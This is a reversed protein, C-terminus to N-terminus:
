KAKPNTFDFTESDYILSAYGQLFDDEKGSVRTIKTKYLNFSWLEMEKEKFTIYIRREYKATSYIINNRKKYDDDSIEVDGNITAYVKGNPSIINCKGSFIKLDQSFMGNLSVNKKFLVGTGVFKDGNWHGSYSNGNSYLEGLGKRIDAEWHGDYTSGTSYIM